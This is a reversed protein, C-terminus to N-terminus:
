REVAKMAALWRDTVQGPLFNVPRAIDEPTLTGAVKSALRVASDMTPAFGRVRAETRHMGEVAARLEWSAGYPYKLSPTLVVLYALSEIRAFVEIEEADLEWLLGTEERWVELRAGLAELVRARLAREVSELAKKAIREQKHMDEVAEVRRSRAARLKQIAEDVRSLQKDLDNKDKSM